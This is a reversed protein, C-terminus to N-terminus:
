PAILKVTPFYARYRSPDRTLLTYGGIAAHAGIFFDPLPSRRTGRNRRYDLFVKGALFSAEYPISEREFIEPRFAQQVEEITRFSISAEAYIVQNIVLRSTAAVEAIADASWAFWEGDATVLDILINSDILVATM